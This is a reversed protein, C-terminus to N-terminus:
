DVKIHLRSSFAIPKDSFLAKTNAWVEKFLDSHRYADLAADDIWHSYTSFINPQHYDQLLELHHCGEFHRIREKTAEFLALFDEVKDEQFTMRVVRILM